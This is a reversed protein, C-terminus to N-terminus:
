NTVTVLKEIKLQHSDGIKKLFFINKGGVSLTIFYSCLIDLVIASGMAFIM